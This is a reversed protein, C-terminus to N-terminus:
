KMQMVQLTVDSWTKGQHLEKCANNIGELATSGSFDSIVDITGTVITATDAETVAFDFTKEIGNMKLTVPMVGASMVGYSGTILSDSLNGFFFERLKADRDPNNTNVSKTNIVFTNGDLKIDDFHGPVGLKDPTKFATWTLTTKALDFNIASAEEAVANSQESEDSDGSKCATFLAASLM